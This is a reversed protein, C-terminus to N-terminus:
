QNYTSQYIKGDTGRYIKRNGGLVLPTTGSEPSEVWDNIQDSEEEPYPVQLLYWSSRCVPTEGVVFIHNMRRKNKNVDCRGGLVRIIEQDSKELNAQDVDNFLSWNGEPTQYNWLAIPLNVSM